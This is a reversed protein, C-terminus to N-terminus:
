VGLIVRSPCARAQVLGTAEAIYTHSAMLHYRVLMIGTNFLLSLNELLPPPIKLSIHINCVPKLMPRVSWPATHAGEGAKSLDDLVDLFDNYQEARCFALNRRAAARLHRFALGWEGAARNRDLAAALAQFEPEWTHVDGGGHWPARCRGGLKPRFPPPNDVREHEPPPPPPPAAM